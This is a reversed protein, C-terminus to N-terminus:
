DSSWPLHLRHHVPPQAAGAEFRVELADGNGLAEVLRAASYSDYLLRLYSRIPFRHSVAILAGNEGGWAERIAAAVEAGATDYSQGPRGEGALLRRDLRLEAGLASAIAEATHAARRLPSSVIRVPDLSLAALSAGVQTAQVRGLETLAADAYGELTGARNAESEGHRVLMLVPHTTAHM